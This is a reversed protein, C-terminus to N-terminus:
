QSIGLIGKLEKIKNRSVPIDYNVDQQRIIYNNNFMPSIKNIYRLNVLYGRHCRYFGFDSCKSELLDLTEKTKFKGNCTVINTKGLEAEFYFVESMRILNIEDDDFAAIRESDQKINRDIGILKDLIVNKIVTSPKKFDTRLLKDVTKDLRSKDIPKLIYDIANLEFAKVAYDDHATVFVIGISSNHELLEKALNLGNIVPMDIDLFAADFQLNKFEEVALVPDTYAAVIEIDNCKKLYYELEDLASKEDDLLIVKVM